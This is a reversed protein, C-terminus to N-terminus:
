KGGLMLYWDKFLERRRSADEPLNIPRGRADIVVGCVGGNVKIPAGTIDVDEIITRRVMKLFLKGSEGSGLPLSVITGQKVDTELFTGDSYELRASLITHGHRAHSVANIVTALNTFATSELVQVPVLPVIDSVAGLLPLIGHKDLIVPCIGQPQIGDLITLLSQQPTATRNIISGSVLIPEFRPSSFANRTELEKMILNLIQRTAALEIEIDTFSVAISDPFLSRQWLYDQVEDDARTGDLWRTIETIKTKELVTELGAGVGYMFTHLSSIKDNAFAAVSSSAGIDIGLVGKSPDYQRGLFRIVRNFALNSLMPPESALSGIGKLGGIRGYQLDMVMEGLDNMAPDLVEEDVGPRINRSVKIHTYKNIANNLRSGLDANGCYLVQPRQPQPLIQLSNVILQAMRLVSRNAGGDIGGAFLILDPRAALVADLQAGASRRDNIGISEVIQGYTSNALKNISDLSVENFLGFTVLKLSPVCSSTIVLLDVGEGGAQAPILLNGDKDILLRGTLDQLRFIANYVAEGVDFFPEQHTSPVVGSAIFHYSGEVVDFLVARTNVSGIELGLISSAETEKPM